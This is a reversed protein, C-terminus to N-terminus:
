PLGQQTGSASLASAQMDRFATYRLSLRYTQGDTGPVAITAAPDFRMSKEGALHVIGVPANPYWDEVLARRNPDFLWPTIYNCTEPLLQVPLGDVYVALGMALQDSTFPKGRQLILAQWRRMVQWHPADTRLAFVGAHLLPRTAIEKLVTRKLGAHRGNKMNFSRVQALGWLGGALWRVPIPREWCRSADSTIALGGAWAADAALAVAAYDQVWSDGDLWVIVQYGPFMKDLWLKSLNAALAPRKALAAQPFADSAPLSAVTVGRAQLAAIQPATLGADVVGLAPMPMPAADRISDLLEAVMPYYVHDGGTVIITRRLAARGVTEGTGYSYKASAGVM